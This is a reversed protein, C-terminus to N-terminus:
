SKVRYDLSLWPLLFSFSSFTVQGWSSKRFLFLLFLCCFVSLSIWSLRPKKVLPLQRLPLPPIPSPFSPSLSSSLQSSPDESSSTQNDCCAAAIPLKPITIRTISPVLTLCGEQLAICLPTISSVPSVSIGLIFLDLM